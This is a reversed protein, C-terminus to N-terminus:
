STQGIINLDELINEFVPVWELYLALKKHGFLAHTKDGPTGNTITVVCALVDPVGQLRGLLPNCQSIAATNVIM